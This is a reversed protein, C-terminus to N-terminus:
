GGRKYAAYLGYGSLILFFPVPNCAYTLSYVLPTDGIWILCGLAKDADINNFLHLWLMMLIAIGKLFNTYERGM